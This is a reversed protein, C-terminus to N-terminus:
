LKETEECWGAGRRQQEVQMLSILLAKVCMSIGPKKAVRSREGSCGNLTIEWKGEAPGRHGERTIFLATPKPGHFGFRRSAARAPDRPPLSFPPPTFLWSINVPSSTWSLGCMWRKSSMKGKQTVAMNIIWEINIAQKLCFIFLKPKRLTSAFLFNTSIFM